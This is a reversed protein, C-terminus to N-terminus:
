SMPVSAKYLTGRGEISYQDVAAPIIVSRGKHLAIGPEGTKESIMPNGDTCLIIEVGRDKRSIYHMGNKITLKSLVFEEAQSPYVQECDGSKVPSLIKLPQERFNLVNLLEPVDVHKPTLGGRLVNDSNAMLEIAVGDLYAHLEGAALFLAQGPKLCILNLLMPSFIGLDDEYGAQLRLMWEYAPNEKRLPRAKTIAEQIVFKRQDAQLTLLHKFFIKLGDADPQNSFARIMGSLGSPQIRSLFSLIEPVKRFGCLAWYPTLACICEPKHNDDKYNRNKADLAIGQKNEKIFGERAQALNPHAQISLPKAAALIKFLYPLQNAFKRAISRGLIEDPYAAILQNLPVAEEKFYVISSAKPHAGMWLEAQPKESPSENGLLDAIASHSGWAYEQIVNKLISIHRM